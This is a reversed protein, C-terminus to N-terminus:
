RTIVGRKVRAQRYGPGALWYSAIGIAFWLYVGAPTGALTPGAFGEATFALFAAFVAVLYTRLEPDAILRLRLVALAIVNLTLGVWLLLGPAGTEIALLNLAGERSTGKGEIQVKQKGGFGGASAGTGLGAGFPAGAIDRPLQFLNREKGARGGGNGEFSAGITEQRHLSNPGSYSLFLSAVGYALGLAVLVGLLLRHVKLRALVSLGAYSLLAVVGIVLSSRSAAAAVGLLAGALLLLAIWRRRLRGVSLLALLGPAALAGIGGSFGSDPGLGPPRPKSEGEFAFTRKSVGGTGEIRAQYGPGWSALQAPSLRSQYAGVLGNALALVGVILFFQRFRLKSRMILYAFFFFPIWELEQRFGGIVKLIGHTEPNFAQIAVVATFAIVWQSLPPMSVEQKSASLRVLMGIAVALVLINRVASAAQSATLLKVPGDLVGLYVAVITLTVPYNPSILLGFLAVAGVIIAGVLAVNPNPVAVAIGMAGGLAILGGLAAVTFDHLRRSQLAPHPDASPGALRPGIISM